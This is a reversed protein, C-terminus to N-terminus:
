NENVVIQLCCKKTTMTYLGRSRVRKSHCDAYPSEILFCPETDTSTILDMRTPGEAEPFDM